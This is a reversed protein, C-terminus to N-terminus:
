AGYLAERLEAMLSMRAYIRKRQEDWRLLVGARKGLLEPDKAVTAFFERAIVESEPSRVVAVKIQRAPHVRRQDIWWDPDRHRLERNLYAISAQHQRLNSM